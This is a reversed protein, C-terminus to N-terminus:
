DRRLDHEVLPDAVDEAQAAGAVDHVRIEQPAELVGDLDDADTEDGDDPVRVAAGDLARDLAHLEAVERLEELLDVGGDLGRPLAAGTIRGVDVLYRLLVDPLRHALDALAARDDAGGEIGSLDTEDAAHVVDVRSLDDERRVSYRTRGRAAPRAPKPSALPPASAMRKSTSTRADPIGAPIGRRPAAKPRLEGLLQTLEAPDKGGRM